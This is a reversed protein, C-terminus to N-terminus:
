GRVHRSAVTDPDLPVLDPPVALWWRDGTRLQVRMVFWDPLTPHWRLVSAKSRISRRLAKPADPSFVEVASDLPFASADSVNYPQGPRLQRQYDVLATEQRHVYAALLSAHKPHYPDRLRPFLIPEEPRCVEDLNSFAEDCLHYYWAGDPVVSRPPSLCQLHYPRQCADCIVIHSYGEAEGCM